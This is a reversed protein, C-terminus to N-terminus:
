TYLLCLQFEELPKPMLSEMIHKIKEMRLLLNKIEFLEVMSLVNDKSREITLLTAKVEMLEQLLEQLAKEKNKILHVFVGTKKYEYKLGEEQGPQFPVIGKVLNVGFPTQVNINRLVFDLGIEKRTKSNAIRM